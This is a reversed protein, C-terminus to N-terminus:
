KWGDEDPVADVARFLEMGEACPNHGLLEARTLVVSIM